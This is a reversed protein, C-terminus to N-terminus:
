SIFLQPTNPRFHGSRSTLLHLPRHRHSLASAFCLVCFRVKPLRAFRAQALRDVQHLHSTAIRTIHTHTHSHRHNTGSQNKKPKTKATPHSWRLENRSRLLQCHAFRNQNIKTKRCILQKLTKENTALSDKFASSCHETLKVNTIQNKRTDHVSIRLKKPPRHARGRFWVVINREEISNSPHMAFEISPHIGFNILPATFVTWDDTWSQRNINIRFYKSFLTFPSHCELEAASLITGFPGLIHREDNNGAIWWMTLDVIWQPSQMRTPRDNM